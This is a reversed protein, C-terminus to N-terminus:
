RFGSGGGGSFGGGGGYSSFGGGGSNRDQAERDLRAQREAPTEYHEVYNMGSLTYTAVETYVDTDMLLADQPALLAFDPWMQKLDKYVQKAIGFLTAFVMYEKWLGVELVHRENLLTFEQLYKKLGYVQRVEDPNLSGRSRGSASLLQTIRKVTARHEVPYQKMYESMEKPQLVHDTGAALWMQHHIANLLQKQVEERRVDSSMPPTVLFTGRNNADPRVQILGMHTMRMVVAAIQDRETVDSSNVARLVQSTRHLDGDLPVDRRWEKMEGQKNGFLRVNQRARTVTKKTDVVKVITTIALVIWLLPVLLEKLGEGLDSLFGENSLGDGQHSAKGTSEVETLSYDSGEFAPKKVKELFTGKRTTAPHFVGKDFQAAIVLGEGENVFPRSTEVVIKGDEINVTGYYRFAWVHTNEKTFQGHEPEIILSVHEAYAGEAPEYFKFIFGDCDDFSNVLRTLTYHINYTRAGPSGIGWCLEPGDDGDAIGCRNTKAARSREVDWPTDVEYPRGTEDSVSLEGVEMGHLNYQKIFGETGNSGIQCYRVEAVRAHGLDNIVVHMQIDSIRHGWAMACSFLALLAFVSLRLCRKVNRKM